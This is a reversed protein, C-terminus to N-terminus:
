PGTVTAGANAGVNVTVDTAKAPPPPNEYKQIAADVRKGSAPIDTDIVGPPWPDITHVAQNWYVADGAALTTRDRHNLYDACGGLVLAVFAVAALSAWRPKNSPISM